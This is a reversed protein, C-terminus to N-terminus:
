PSRPSTLTFIRVSDSYGASVLLPHSKGKLGILCRTDGPIYLGTQSFPQPTFNGHDDIELVMGISADLPGMQARLPYLNGALVLCTRGGITTPVIGNIMSIQAYNPLPHITFHKGRDNHLYSSRLMRIQSVSAAALQQPSLVDEIQADSYDAYRGFKKQRAPLQRLLEDRSAYPYSKGQIYYTLLPDFTGNGSFDGYYMQLPQQDTARFQTNTGLNGIVLDTDGDHDVDIPLLCTWWGQSRSLGYAATQDSFHGQKNILITVPMFCGVMVLDPWGDKNLDIWCADSVM